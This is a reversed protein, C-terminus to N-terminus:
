PRATVGRLALWGSVQDRQEGRVLEFVSRVHRDQNERQVRDVGPVQPARDDDEGSPDRVTRKEGREGAQDHEPRAPEARGTGDRQDREPRQREDHHRPRDRDHGRHHQGRRQVHLQRRRFAPGVAVRVIGTEVHGAAPVRGNEAGRRRTRVLGPRPRVATRRVRNDEDHGVRTESSGSSIHSPRTSV